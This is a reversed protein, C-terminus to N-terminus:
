HIETILVFNEISRHPRPLPERGTRPRPGHKTICYHLATSICASNGIARFALPRNIYKVPFLISSSFIKDYFHINQYRNMNMEHECQCIVGYKELRSMTPLTTARWLLLTIMLLNRQRYKMAGMNQFRYASSVLVLSPFRTKALIRSANKFKAHPM